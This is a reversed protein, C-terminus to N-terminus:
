YTRSQSFYYRACFIAVLMALPLCLAYGVQTSVTATTQATTIFEYAIRESIVVFIALALRAVLGTFRPLTAHELVVFVWVFILFLSIPRTIRATLMMWTIHNSIGYKGGRYMSDMIQRLTAYEPMLRAGEIVRPKVSIPLKYNDIHQTDVRLNKLTKWTASATVWEGNVYDAKTSDYWSLLQDDKFEFYTIDRLQKINEPVIRANLFGSKSYFWLKNDLSSYITGKYIKKVRWIKAYASVQPALWERNVTVLTILAIFLPILGRLVQMMSVGFIHGVLLEKSKRLRLLFVITALCLIISDAKIISAPIRYLTYIIADASTYRMDAIRLEVILSSMGLLIIAIVTVDFFSRIYKQSYYRSLLVIPGM